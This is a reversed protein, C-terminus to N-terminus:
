RRAPPTPSGCAFPGSVALRPAENLRRLAEDIRAFQGAMTKMASAPDPDVVARRIANAADEWAGTRMGPYPVAYPYSGPIETRLADEYAENIKRRDQEYNGLLVPDVAYNANSTLSDYPRGARRTFEANLESLQLDRRDAAERIREISRQRAADAPSPPTVIEPAPPTAPPDLTFLAFCSSLQNDRVVTIRLGAADGM